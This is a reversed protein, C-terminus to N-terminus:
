TPIHKAGPHDKLNRALAILNALNFKETPPYDKLHM